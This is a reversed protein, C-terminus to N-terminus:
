ETLVTPLRHRPRCEGLAGHARYRVVTGSLVTTNPRSDRLTITALNWSNRVDLVGNTVAMYASSLDSGELLYFAPDSVGEFPNPRTGTLFAYVSVAISEWFLTVLFYSLAVGAATTSRRVAASIGVGVGVSCLTYLVTALLFQATKVPDPPGYWVSGLGLLVATPVATVTLLMLWRGLLKGLFVDSRSLGGATLRIAGSDREGAIARYGLALGGVTVPFTTMGQAIALTTESGLADVVISTERSLGVAEAGTKAQYGVAVFLFLLIWPGKSRTLQRIERTALATIPSISQSIGHNSTQSKM